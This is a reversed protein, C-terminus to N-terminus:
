PTAPAANNDDNTLVLVTVTAAAAGGLLLLPLLPSAFFPAAVPDLDAAPTILSAEVAATTGKKCPAKPAVAVVSGSNVTVACGNLYSIVASGEKGVFVKDGAKLDFIGEPAVFGAGANVMVKGTSGTLQAVSSAAVAATSTVAFALASVLSLTKIL